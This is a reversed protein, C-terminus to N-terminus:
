SSWRGFLEDQVVLDRLQCLGAFVRSTVTGVPVGLEQAVDAYTRGVLHVAVIADRHEDSLRRLSNEVLWRDALRDIDDVAVGADFADPGEGHQREGTLGPRVSRARYADIAANRAIQFLWRRLSALRGDFQQRARWARVFVDETIAEALGRDGTVRCCYGYIEGGHEEYASDL